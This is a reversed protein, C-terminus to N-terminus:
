LLYSIFIELSVLTLLLGGIFHAKYKQEYGLRYGTYVGLVVAAATLIGVALTEKALGTEMFAFGVGTLFADVSTALGLLCMEKVSGWAELQEFIPKKRVGKQLMYVGVGLLIAAAIGYWVLTIHRSQEAFAPVLMVLNGTLLAGVQWASFIVCMQVLKKKDIQGVVAGKCIAVAYVDLSLGASTLLTEWINVKRGDGM